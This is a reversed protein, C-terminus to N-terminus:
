VSVPMLISMMQSRVTIIAPLHQRHDAADVVLSIAKKENHDSRGRLEELACHAMLKYNIARDTLENVLACIPCANKENRIRGAGDTKWQQGAVIPMLDLINEVTIREKM